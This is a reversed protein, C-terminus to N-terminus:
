MRYLPDLLYHLLQFLSEAIADCWAPLLPPLYALLSSATSWDGQQIAAKLLGLKQNTRPNLIKKRYEQLLLVWVFLFKVFGCLFYLVDPCGVELGSVTYQVSHVHIYMYM